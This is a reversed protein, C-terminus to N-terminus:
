CAHYDTCLADIIYDVFAYPPIFSEIIYDVFMCAYKYTQFGGVNLNERLYAHCFIFPLLM